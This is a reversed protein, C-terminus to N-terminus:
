GKPGLIRLAEEADKKPVLLRYNFRMSTGSDRGMRAHIGRSQLFARALQAEWRQIYTKICVEETEM